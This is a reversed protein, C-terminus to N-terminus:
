SSVLLYKVTAESLEVPTAGLPAWSKIQLARIALWIEQIERGFKLELQTVRINVEEIEGDLNLLKSDLVALQSDTHIRERALAKVLTACSVTNAKCNYASNRRLM